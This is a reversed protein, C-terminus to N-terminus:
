WAHPNTPKVERRVLSLRGDADPSSPLLHPAVFDTAFDDPLDDYFVLCRLEVSRRTPLPGEAEDLRLATHLAFCAVEESSDFQKLLLAETPEMCSFYVWSHEPSHMVRYTEGVRHEYVLKVTQVDAPKSSQWMCCALPDCMVKELPYWFNIIAFRGKLARDISEPTEYPALLQQARTYGSRVTYDNHARIGPQALFKTANPNERTVGSNLEGTLLDKDRLIHDFVLVKKAGTAKLLYRCAEPYMKTHVDKPQEFAASIPRDLTILEFGSTDLSFAGGRGDRLPMLHEETDGYGDRKYLMGDGSESTSYVVKTLRTPLAAASAVCHASLVSVRHAPRQRMAADLM